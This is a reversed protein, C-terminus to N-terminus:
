LGAKEARRAREPLGLHDRQVDLVQLEALFANADGDPTALGVLLAFALGNVRRSSGRPRTEELLM